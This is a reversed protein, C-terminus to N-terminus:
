RRHDDTATHVSNDYNIPLQRYKTNYHHIQMMDVFLQCKVDYKVRKSSMKQCKKDIFLALMSTKMAMVYRAFFVLKYLCYLVEVM